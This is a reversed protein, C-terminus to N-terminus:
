GLHTPLQWSSGSSVLDRTNKIKSLLAESKRRTHAVIRGKERLALHIMASVRTDEGPEAECPRAPELAQLMRRLTDLSDATSDLCLTVDDVKKEIEALKQYHEVNVTVFDDPHDPDGIMM